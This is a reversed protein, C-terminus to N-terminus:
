EPKWSKAEERSNLTKDLGDGTVRCPVKWPAGCYRKGEFCNGAVCPPGVHEALYPMAEVLYNKVKMAVVLIEQCNVPCARLEVFRMWQRLNATMILKTEIGGPLIHRAEERPFGAAVLGKYVQWSLGRAKEWLERQVIGLNAPMAMEFGDPALTYHLSQQDYSTNRHRVMQHSFDRSVGEVGFTFVPHELVGMHKNSLIKRVLRECEVDTLNDNLEKISIGQTYCLRAAMAMLRTPDGKPTLLTVQPQM